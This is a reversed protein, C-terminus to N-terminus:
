EDIEFIDKLLKDYGFIDLGQQQDKLSKEFDKKFWKSKFPTKLKKLEKKLEKVHASDEPLITEASTLMDLKELEGEIELVRQLNKTNAIEEYIISEIVPQLTEPTYKSFEPDVIVKMLEETVGEPMIGTLNEAKWIQKADNLITTGRDVQDFYDNVVEVHLEEAEPSKHSEDMIKFRTKGTDRHKGNWYKMNNHTSLGHLDNFFNTKVRHSEPDALDLNAEADGPTYGRYLAIDQIRNFLSSGRETNHYIGVSQVLTLQHDLQIKRQPIQNRELADEYDDMFIDMKEKRLKKFATDRTINDKSKGVPLGSAWNTSWDGAVLRKYDEMNNNLFAKLNFRRSRGGQTLQANWARKISRVNQLPDDPVIAQLPDGKQTGIRENPPIYVTPDNPGTGKPLRAMDMAQKWSIGGEHNRYIALVRRYQTPHMNLIAQTQVDITQLRAPQGVNTRKTKDRELKKRLKHGRKFSAAKSGQVKSLKGGLAGITLYTTPTTIREDVNTFDSISKLINQETQNPTNQQETIWGGIGGQDILQQQLEQKEQQAELFKEGYWTNSFWDEVKDLTETGLKREM